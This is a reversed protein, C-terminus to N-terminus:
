SPTIVEVGFQDLVRQIPTMITVRESGAFLLGVVRGEMDLISSGSDGPKSMSTTFVQDVFRATRGAYNVNVVAEVQVVMGQTLGTTRGMKQVNQGLEPTGVGTPIGIEMIDPIVLDPRDPLALAADMLNEAAAARLAQLRHTSGSFRALFNLIAALTEAVQCESPKDGFVLPEFAALTAIKDNPIGGDAPGPQYIPDGIEAGNSDALVHNNSLIYAQHDRHVLLGFTGATIDRHGVSIGPQTPRRRLRPDEAMHAIIRGTEVVDTTLGDVAQPIMEESTLAAPPVKNTVSVVLSLQDTYQGNKFKLGLGCAVVHKRNLFDPIVQQYIKRADNLLQANM